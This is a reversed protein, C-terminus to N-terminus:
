LYGTGGHRTATSRARAGIRGRPPPIGDANLRQAIERPSLGDIYEAYIRRVIEAEAEVIELEGPKGPVPRYGYARGGANRGERVVGQMGRRVKHKLDTLFLEGLLGRIGIQIADARGEHVAYIEVGAFRLRKYIGALDEQDRSIRDLAEVVVCAFRGARADEMLTLLGNRGVISASTQARDSYVHAITLGHDAAYRRCLAM